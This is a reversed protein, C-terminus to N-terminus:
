CRVFVCLFWPSFLPNFLSCTIPSIFGPTYFLSLVFPFHFTSRRHSSPRHRRGGFAARVLLPVSKPPLRSLLLDSGNKNVTSDSNNRHPLNLCNSVTHGTIFSDGRTSTLDPLTGTRANTDGCILVNGQAQFHCTEEELTPFIEESYYPSESPPSIYQVFSCM